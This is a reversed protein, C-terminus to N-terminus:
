EPRPDNPNNKLYIDILNQPVRGRDKVEHGANRLWEKARQLWQSQAASTGTSQKPATAPQTVERSADVYPRMAEVFKKRNEACLDIERREIVKGETDDWLLFEVTQVDETTEGDLDDVRELRAYTTITQGAIFTKAEEVGEEDKKSADVPTVRLAMAKGREKGRNTPLIGYGLGRGCTVGLWGEGGFWVWVVVLLRGGGPTLQFPSPIPRWY